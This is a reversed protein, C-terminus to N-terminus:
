QKLQDLARRLNRRAAEEYRDHFAQTQYLRPRALLMTLLRARGTRYDPEPAWAYEKRIRHEYEMFEPASRGLIALDVDCLLQADPDASPAAHDSFRILEEVRSVTGGAVGAASLVRGAWDASRAENDSRRSDYVVDHFWIATEILDRRPSDVRAGDLIVLCDVVHHLTHYARGSEGYAASLEDFTAASEGRAGLRRWLEAFRLGATPAM